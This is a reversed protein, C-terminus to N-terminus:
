LHSASRDYAATERWLRERLTSAIPNLAADPRDHRPTAALLAATYEHRPAAFVGATPGSELVRGGFMVTVEDCIKAVVGLDHTVFLVAAGTRAQMEHILRL